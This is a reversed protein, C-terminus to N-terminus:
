LVFSPQINPAREPSDISCGDSVLEPINRCEQFRLGAATAGVFGATL